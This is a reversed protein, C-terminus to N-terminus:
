APVAALEPVAGMQQFMGLDDMNIWTEHLKGDVIHIIHIGTVEVPKGTPKIGM